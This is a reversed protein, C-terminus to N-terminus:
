EPFDSSRPRFCSREDLRRAEAYGNGARLAQYQEIITLRDEGTM